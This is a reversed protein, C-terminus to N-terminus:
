FGEAADPSNGPPPSTPVKGGGGMTPFIAPDPWKRFTEFGESASGLTSSRGGAGVTVRKPTPSPGVGEGAEPSKGPPPSTAVKGGGGM